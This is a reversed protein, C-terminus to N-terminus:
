VDSRFIFSYLFLHWEGIGFTSASISWFEVWIMFRIRVCGTIQGLRRRWKPRSFFTSRRRIFRSAKFGQIASLIARSTVSSTTNRGKIKWFNWKKQTQNFKENLVCTSNRWIDRNIEAIFLQTQLIDKKISMFHLYM